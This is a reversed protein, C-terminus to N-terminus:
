EGHEECNQLAWLLCLCCLLCSGLVAQVHGIWLSLALEGELGLEATFSMPHFPGSSAATEPTIVITTVLMQGM